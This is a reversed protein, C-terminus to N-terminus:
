NSGEIEKFLAGYLTAIDSNAKEISKKMRLAICHFTRFGLIPEKECIEMFAKGSIKLTRCDTAAVVTATRKDNGVLSAEGFFVHMTDDLESLAISDGSPTRRSVKVRGKRLIYFSDGNEGERIITEGESFDKRELADDVMKMIRKGNKSDKFDKFIELGTLVPFVTEFDAKMM